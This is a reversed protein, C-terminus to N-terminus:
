NEILTSEELKCDNNPNEVETEQKLIQPQLTSELQFVIEEASPRLEPKLRLCQEM